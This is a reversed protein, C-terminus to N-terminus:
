GKPQPDADPFRSRALPGKSESIVTSQEDQHEFYVFPNKGPTSKVLTKGFFRNSRQSDTLNIEVIQDGHDSIWTSLAEVIRPNIYPPKDFSYSEIPAPKAPPGPPTSPPSLTVPAPPTAPSSLTAPASLMEALYDLRREYATKLCPADSCRNREHTLWAHQRSRWASPDLPLLKKYAEAVREDLKSLQDDACILKEIVSAAKACDFSAAFAALPFLLLAATLALVAWRGSSGRRRWRCLRTMKAALTLSPWTRRLPRDVGIAVVAV